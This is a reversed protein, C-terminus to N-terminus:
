DMDEDSDEDDGGGGHGAMYERISGIDDQIDFINREIAGVQNYTNNALNYTNRICM